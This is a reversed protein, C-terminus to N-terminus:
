LALLAAFGIAVLADDQGRDLLEVRALAASGSDRLLVAQARFPGKRGPALYRVSLDAVPRGSGAREAALEIV